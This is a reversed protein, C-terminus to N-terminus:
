EIIIKKEVTGDSYIYFLLINNKPKTERGLVDVIKLLQKNSGNLNNISVHEETEVLVFNDIYANNYQITDNTGGIEVTIHEEANQTNFVVSYQQWNDIGLNTTILHTGFQNNSNSIGVRIYNSPPNYCALTDTPYTSAKRIYFSLKYNKAYDLPSVLALSLKSHLLVGSVLKSAMNVHWNGEQAGGGWYYNPFSICTICSDNIFGISSKYSNTFDVTNNWAISNIFHYCQTETNSEFSGNLILNQQAKVALSFCVITLILLRNIM